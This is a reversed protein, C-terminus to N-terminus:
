DAEGAALRLTERVFDTKGGTYYAWDDNAESMLRLKLAAYAQARQPHARLYDRFVIRDRLVHNDSSCLYLRAGYSGKGSTFTWSQDNYKDGHFTYASLDKVREIATLLGDENCFAAHLDIKPKAALGPVSTSGVHHFFPALDSLVPHLEAKVEDFLQPWEPNYAVVVIAM